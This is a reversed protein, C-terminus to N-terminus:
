VVPYVAAARDRRQRLAILNRSPRSAKSVRGLTCGRRATSTQLGCATKPSGPEVVRVFVLRRRLIGALARAVRVVGTASTSDDVGCIISGAMPAM